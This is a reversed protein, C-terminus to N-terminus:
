KRSFFDCKTKRSGLNQAVLLSFNPSSDLDCSYEKRYVGQFRPNLPPPRSSIINLTYHDGMTHLVTGEFCISPFYRCVYALLFELQEKPWVPNEEWFAQYFFSEKLANYSLKLITGLPWSPKSALTHSWQSASSRWTFAHHFSTLDLLCYPLTNARNSAKQKEATMILENVFQMLAQLCSLWGVISWFM